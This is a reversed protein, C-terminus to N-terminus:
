RGRIRERDGVESILDNEFKKNCGSIRPPGGDSTYFVIRQCPLNPDSFIDDIREHITKGKKPRAILFIQSVGSCSRLLKETLVKGLFGTGGTILVCKDQYFQQIPSGEAELPQPMGEVKETMKICNITMKQQLDVLSVSPGLERFVSHTSAVSLNYLGVESLLSKRLVSNYSTSPLFRGNIMPANGISEQFRSDNENSSIFVDVIFFSLVFEKWMESILSVEGDIDYTYIKYDLHRQYRFPPFLEKQTEKDDVNESRKLRVHSWVGTTLDTVADSKLSQVLLFTVPPYM